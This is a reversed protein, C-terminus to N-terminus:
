ENGGEPHTTTEPVYNGRIAEIMPKFLALTLCIVGLVACAVPVGWLNALGYALLALGTLALLENLYKM